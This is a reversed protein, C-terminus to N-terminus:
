AVDCSVIGNRLAERRDQGLLTAIVIKAYGAAGTLVRILIRKSIFFNLNDNCNVGM